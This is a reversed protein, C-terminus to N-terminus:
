TDEELIQTLRKVARAWLMRVAGVSRGLEAAITEFPVHELTRQIFTERYHDPLRNLADALLV